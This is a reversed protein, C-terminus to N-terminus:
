CHLISSFKLRPSAFGRIRCKPIPVASQHTDWEPFRCYFTLMTRPRSAHWVGSNERSSAWMPNSHTRQHFPWEVAKSCGLTSTATAVVASWENSNNFSQRRRRILTSPRGALQSGGGCSQRGSTVCLVFPIVRYIWEEDVSVVKTWLEYPTWSSRRFRALFWGSLSIAGALPARGLLICSFLISSLHSRTIYMDTFYTSDSIRLSSDFEPPSSVATLSQRYSCINPM